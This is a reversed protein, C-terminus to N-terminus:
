RAQAYTADLPAMDLNQGIGTPDDHRQRASVSADSPRPGSPPRRNKSLTDRRRRRIEDTAPRATSDPTGARAWVGFTAGVAAGDGWAWLSSARSFAKKSSAKWARMARLGCCIVESPM